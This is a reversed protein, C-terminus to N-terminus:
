ATEDTCYSLMLSIIRGLIGDRNEHGAQYTLKDMVKAKNFVTIHDTDYDEDEDPPISCWIGNRKNKFSGNERKKRNTAHIHTWGDEAITVHVTKNM